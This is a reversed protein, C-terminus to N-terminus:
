PTVMTFAYVYAVNERTLNALTGFQPNEFLAVLAQRGVEVGAATADDLKSPLNSHGNEDVLPFRNRLFVTVPSPVLDRGVTDKIGARPPDETATAAMLIGYRDGEIFPAAAVLVIKGEAYTATFPPLGGALDGASFKTFNVLFVTGNLGGPGPSFASVTSADLTGKVALEIRTDSVIQPVIGATPLLEVVPNTHIPVAWTIAVEEKPMEGFLDIAGWLDAAAFGRRIAELSYLTHTAGVAGYSQVLLEYYYCGTDLAEDMPDLDPQPDPSCDLLSEEQKLLFYATSGVVMSGDAAKVGDEWGRVAFVYTSGVAWGQPRDIHLYNETADFSIMVDTIISGRTSDLIFLTEGVGQTVTSLDLPASAPTKVPSLTPFGDLRELYQDFECEAPSVLTADVCAGPETPIDLGAVSFDIKGTTQSIVLATPEPSRPPTSSPDFQMVEPLPDPKLDPVCGAVAAVLALLSAAGM